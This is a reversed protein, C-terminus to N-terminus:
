LPFYLEEINQYLLDQYYKENEKNQKIMENFSDLIKKSLFNSAKKILDGFTTKSNVNMTIYKCNSNSFFKFIYYKHEEPIPLSIHNFPEYTKNETFCKTCKIINQFQGSFLDTIISNERKLYFTYYRQSALVDSENEKQENLISYPKEKVRNLDEHLYNLLILIFEMADQQNNNGFKNTSIIFAIRFFYPNIKSFKSLWMLNILDSYAKILVGNSGFTTQLNIENQFNNNLFYKTLDKTNSLCQLSCNMYCTNGLNFLGVVGKSKDKNESTYMSNYFNLSLFENLKFPKIMLESLIEHIKEHDKIKNNEKNNLNDKCQKSCFLHMSCSSCINNKINLVIIEKGCISCTFVLQKNQNLIPLITKLFRPNKKDNNIEIIIFENKPNYKKFITEVKSEKEEESFIIEEFFISEYTQINNIYSLIIEILIDKNKKNIKYFNIKQEDKDIEEKIQNDIEKKKLINKIEYGICRKIKTELYKISKKASIQIIKKKM